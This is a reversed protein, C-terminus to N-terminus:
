SLVVKGNIMCFQVHAAYSKVPHDSYITIDADKGVEISGIQDAVGLMEAPQITMMKVVDEADIGARYVEIASWIFVERGESAGKCTNTFAIRNGNEVLEKLRSLDIEHKSIQSLNSFNGFIIGVKKEKLELILSEKYEEMVAEPTYLESLEYEELIQLKVSSTGFLQEKIRQEMQWIKKKPILHHSKLHVHLFDRGSNTTIKKVEVDAFLVKFEEEVKLTPFVHFFTKENKIQEM